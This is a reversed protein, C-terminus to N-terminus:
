HPPKRYTTGRDTHCVNCVGIPDPRGQLAINQLNDKALTSPYLAHPEGHCTSCLVTNDEHAMSNLFSGGFVRLHAEEETSDHCQSCTPLTQVSWPQQMQRQAVRENLNGHCDSCWINHGDMKKNVHHGRYCNVNNGPHCAYCNNALNPDYSLVETNQVHWRHLVDSFTYRSTSLGHYGPPTSEGMAPDLHCRSCRIPGPEGDGDPDLAAFNIGSDRAHLTGMLNFSNLPTPDYGSNETLKLHCSCCGGFAVPAVTTTQALMENTFQDYVKVETTLYPNRDPGNLPDVMIKEASSSLSSADPYAPVGVIEWWGERQPHMEGSLKARTIPSQVRGDEPDVAPYPFGYKPAMAIWSAYYPDEKLTSDSNQLINYEVRIDSASSLVAPDSGREFVQARLTNFPPLLLFYEAGPCACHMGLDNTAMVVVDRSRSRNNNDSPRPKHYDDDANTVDVLLWFGFVIAVMVIFMYFKKM